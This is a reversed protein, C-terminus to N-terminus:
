AGKQSGSHDGAVLQRLEEKILGVLRPDTLPDGDFVVRPAPLGSPTPFGDHEPGAGPTNVLVLYPVGDAAMEAVLRVTAPDVQCGRRHVWVVAAAGAALVERVPAFREQGPVGVLSLTRNGIEMTGHDMAVTRGDVALNMAGPSLAGILTSKGAEAAGVVLVKVARV